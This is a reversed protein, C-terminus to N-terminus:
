RPTTTIVGVTSMALLQPLLVFLQCLSTNLNHSWRGVCRPLLSSNLYYSWRNVYRSTLSANLYYSWCNVYRHTSTILGVISM